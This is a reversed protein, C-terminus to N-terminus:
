GAQTQVDLISRRTTEALRGGGGVCSRLVARRCERATGGRRTATPLREVRAGAILIPCSRCKRRGSQGVDCTSGILGKWGTSLAPIRLARELRDRSHGFLYLLADIEAVSFREPV